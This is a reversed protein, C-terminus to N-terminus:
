FQEEFTVEGKRNTIKVSVGEANSRVLMSSNNDNVVIPFNHVGKQEAFFMQRHMHASIMVDIKTKALVPFLIEGWHANGHWDLMSQVGKEDQAKMAEVAPPIHLLIIHHKAKRFEKSKIVQKLWEVQELRYEDFAIFGAYVEHTDLKDEGSDLMVVATDGFYYVGYYKGERTNHIFEDYTRALHGRTEHNGRVVAFPKHKAFKEVSVDIFSSFPQGQESYHSLIDGNYFIMGVEDMPLLDLLEGCKKSDDHIDNMVGFTFEEAKPDFTSFSYWESKIEEGFTVKYPQFNLVRTSVIRYEYETAPELGDLNIVNHTNDAMILGDERSDCIRSESSGKKRLEVKSFGKHSTTFVVTAGDYTVGQLYPGHNITYAETNNQANDAWEIIVPEKQGEVSFAVAPVTCLAVALLLMKNLNSVRKM